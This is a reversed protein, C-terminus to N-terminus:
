TFIIKFFTMICLTIKILTTIQTDNKNIKMISLTL